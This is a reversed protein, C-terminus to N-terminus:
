DSSRVNGGMPDIMDPVEMELDVDFVCVSCSVVDVNPRKEALSHKHMDPKRVSLEVEVVM